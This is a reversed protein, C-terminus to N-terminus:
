REAQRKSLQSRLAAAVSAFRAREALIIARRLTEDSVDVDTRVRAQPYLQEAPALQVPSFQYQDGTLDVDYEEDGLRIRNLWHSQGEIRTSVMKAGLLKSLVVSVAACQGTSPAHGAFGPAATEASFGKELERRLGLLAEKIDAEKALAATLVTALWNSTM